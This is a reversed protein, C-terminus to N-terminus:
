SPMLLTEENGFASVAYNTRYGYEYDYLSKLAGQAMCVLAVAGHLVTICVSISILTMVLMTHYSGSPVQYLMM